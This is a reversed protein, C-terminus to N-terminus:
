ISSVVVVIFCLLGGSYQFADLYGSIRSGHGAHLDEGIEGATGVEPDPADERVADNHPHRGSFAPFAQRVPLRVYFRRLVLIEYLEQRNARSRRDVRGARRRLRHSFLPLHRDLVVFGCVLRPCSPPPRTNPIIFVHLLVVEELEQYWSPVQFQFFNKTSSLDHMFLHPFVCMPAVIM